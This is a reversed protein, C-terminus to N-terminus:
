FRHLRCRLRKGTRGRGQNTHDYQVEKCDVSPVHLMKVGTMAMFLEGSLHITTGNPAGPADSVSRGCAGARHRDLRRWPWPRYPTTVRAELRRHDPVLAYPIQAGICDPTTAAAHSSRAVARTRARRLRVNRGTANVRRVRPRSNQGGSVPGAGFRARWPPGVMVARRRAAALARPAASASPAAGNAALACVRSALIVKKMQAPEFWPM